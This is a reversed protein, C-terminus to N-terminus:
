LGHHGAGGGNVYASDTGFNPAHVMLAATMATINMHTNPKRLRRFIIRQSRAGARETATM